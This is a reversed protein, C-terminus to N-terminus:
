RPAKEQISCSYKEQLVRNRSIMDKPSLKGPRPILIEWSHSRFNLFSRKAKSPVRKLPKEKSYKNGPALGYPVLGGWIKRGKVGPRSYDITIDTDVGLRQSVNAKLSPRIKQQANILSPFVLLSFIMVFSIFISFRKM